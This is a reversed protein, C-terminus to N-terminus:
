PAESLGLYRPLLVRIRTGQGTVPDTPSDIMIQGYHEEVISYVLALGLGTGKGPDKTTFFPEFLRSVIAKPIGSGEDEVSLTVTQAQAESRVRIPAGPPSADRANSLLNIMVQVLRQPDGQVFHEPDCLNFFDVDVSQRNLSLLAIAEQAAEAVCVAEHAQQRGGAHAFSMLSQVIRTIRRTQEIIQSSIEDIEEDAEREERLNQALCAIGTVPNGIEHAVGAALRGISALRESHILRDELLQTESIDEVVLVTGNSGVALPEDITAKHLNLWRQEHEQPLRQKYLHQQAPEALFREFLDQWPDPLASLRSGVVRAGDIGTLEEMARNWMLIERDRALSCVGMPLEQLTQRHYRRLADLEAALGTLRSQYDELRNEIFHIDETAYAESEAKFPLFTEVIDQAVRPGMLGSLNAEIRDRLRRLAYPRREDYPLLLDALAREVEKQATKAGLPKTLQAAFDQPSSAALERRQPRRVNDVACAEAASKEEESAETFLSVLAFVLVNVTLSAVAALHWNSASIRYGFAGIQLPNIDAVLPMLMSLFWLGLGCLLGAIFGKRNATQWYLVSLAGPLFQVTAVFSVIGLSSLDGHGHLLRYFGYSGLIIAAILMRRTTRLWRYINGDTPPQYLPLVIHNLLMGSLAMTVVIILGSAASLGGVFAVLALLPNDLALGVGLTFYEPPTPSGLALGGWLIPPVALSILLLFLPLGWSASVLAQPSLNETFAMHYMHPTVIAAAFFVLLLIRWPGEQLPTHLTSLASQNQQLWTELGNPGGFVTYLTVGGVIGLALLKVLSEFAIAVVLGEHREKSNIQRAGFLMAFLTILLCFGLAPADQARAQVLIGASTAVAQIQLALLPLVAILMGLSTLAGAWTSRFRFAFLDALSALQYARTLRLIPYLLVPALLFAGCLGLYYALFGYGYDYALGVTGYFAWASAYVGLSLTYILPHRVLRRPVWGKETMWAVGFFILLYGASILVLQSLSFSTPM